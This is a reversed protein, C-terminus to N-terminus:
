PVKVSGKVSTGAAANSDYTLVVTWEGSSKFESLAIRIPACGTTSVNGFGTSSSKVQAGDKTLVASCTGGEEFIGPVYGIVEIQNDNEAARTILPTVEKKTSTPPKSAAEEELKIRETVRDKNEDAEKKEVETPPGYNIGNDDIKNDKQLFWYGAGAIVVLALVAIIAKNTISRKTKM